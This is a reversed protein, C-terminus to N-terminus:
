KCPTLTSQRLTNCVSQTCSLNCKSYVKGVNRDNIKSVVINIPPNCYMNSANILFNVRTDYYVITIYTFVITFHLIKILQYFLYDEECVKYTFLLLMQLDKVNTSHNNCGTNCSGSRGLHLMNQSMMVVTISALAYM